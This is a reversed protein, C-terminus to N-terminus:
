SRRCAEFSSAKNDHFSDVHSVQSWPNEHWLSGTRLGDYTVIKMGWYEVNRTTNAWGTTKNNFGYDSFSIANAGCHAWNWQVRIGKFDAFQYFCYWRNDNDGAPCHHWDVLPEVEGPTLGEEKLAAPSSEPATDQGPLPFSLIPEGGNWSIENASIQVGGNHTEALTADIDAQLEHRQAASLSMVEPRMDTASAAPLGSLDEAAAPITGAIVSIFVVSGAALINLPKSKM